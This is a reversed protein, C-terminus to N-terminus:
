NKQPRINTLLYRLFVLFGYLMAVPLLIMVALLTYFIALKKVAQHRARVLEGRLVAARLEVLRAGARLCDDYGPATEGGTAQRCGAAVEGVAREQAYSSNLRGAAERYERHVRVLDFRGWFLVLGVYLLVLPLYLFRFLWSRRFGPAAEAPEAAM